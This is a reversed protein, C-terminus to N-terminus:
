TTLIAAERVFGLSRTVDKLINGTSSIELASLPGRPRHAAGDGEREPGEHVGVGAGERAASAGRLGASSLFSGVCGGKINRLKAVDM